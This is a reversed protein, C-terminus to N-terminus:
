GQNLPKLVQYRLEQSLWVLTYPLASSKGIYVPGFSLSFHAGFAPHDPHADNVMGILLVITLAAISLDSSSWSKPTQTSARRERPQM